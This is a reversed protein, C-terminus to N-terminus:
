LSAQYLVHVSEMHLSHLTPVYLPPKVAGSAGHVLFHTGYGGRKPLRSIGHEGCWLAPWVGGGHLYPYLLAPTSNLHAFGLPDILCLTMISATPLTELPWAAPIRLGPLYTKSFAREWTRAKREM